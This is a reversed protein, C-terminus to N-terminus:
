LILYFDVMHLPVALSWDIYRFVVPAQMFTVWYVHMYFYYVGTTLTVPMGVHLSTKRHAAVGLAGFFFFVTAAAM